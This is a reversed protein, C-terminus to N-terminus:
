RDRDAECEAECEWCMPVATEACIMRAREDRQTVMPVLASYRRECIDCSMEVPMLPGSNAWRIAERTHGM